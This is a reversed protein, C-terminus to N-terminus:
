RPSAQSGQQPAALIINPVELSKATENLKALDGAILANLESGYQKLLGAQEAYVDRMGQTPAGDSEKVTEFLFALQSYLKAGGRQALIDYAVEAKPNHLKEELEDLKRILEQGPKILTDTKPNGKLLDDRAGVQKRISRIQHVIKTLRDLDDRIDLAFKLQASLNDASIQERPDPQVTVTTSLTNGDVMLKLTYPGPNVLLGQEVLGADVKAGKIKDAGKYRLDWAVRNVGVETTLVTKKVKEFPADPDDEAVEEEGEKPGLSPKEEVQRLQIGNAPPEKKPKSKLTTVLTGQADVIELTIPEKPKVKLYYNVIAGTPPNKGISKAHFAPHYRYRVAAQVPFLHANAGAIQPSMDRLPTLDDLIWISRGHTGVVLDNNKVILDHVAVTPLNLKLQQWNAGDDISFAVGRETGVYLMGKHKPDERVAHLYVEVPLKEALNTWTKGYDTTKFLYPHMNDLRHADVVVYATAAEFPSAEVCDVTGWEPLGKINATVNAWSKGGDQSVHVLGDDTGAWLLDKQKPSEAIAFITDYIEAGTNDGTIPGGSWKQKSKDNRTLDPSIATWHAGGDSTKFLVNSAHYVVKPDHPSVLIPATWQFRYRLDEGGHGSPNLPYISINRAQRTRQDYRTIYGGYEGAYVVNADTPDHATYGAEGGGVEHWDCNSIGAACLSNSPGRATGLDQMAGSVHYPTDNDVAVHYFQALPLPPSFWTEGGDLSIDVGGDNSGIMRKPNRPDIWLDHNDGHHLGKVRKFTKGGDISKLMPVQPCWVVDANRPDVTITSYYWARQRLFHGANVLQWTDGGDDSRYLGGKDAEILAYVRSPNSPAVAVGVKGWIGEPLGKGPTGPPQDEKGTLQKWSDGGDRSMYLGSGPGGSTLEWPRRRAQWMGAFLIRPNSPDFCVDSAGADSPGEKLVALRQWLKGGDTTRYVGREPNPGFAHGLVAAYTIDPNTPHVILTGIQGEQNWVHQWTKGADTSKYIGNGAAVNGRINGEGSGVYIVNPDSPAVALSGISAMPQDDFIPKWATGGDSSKWVGGSATAAYYTLPDGAIGAARSVRGGVAPGILRYKLAKFEPPGGKSPPEEEDASAPLCCLVALGLVVLLKGLRPTSSKMTNESIL